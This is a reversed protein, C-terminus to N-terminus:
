TSPPGECGLKAHVTTLPRLVSIDVAKWESPGQTPSINAVVEYDSELDLDGVVFSSTVDAPNDDSILLWAAARDRCSELSLSYRAAEQGGPFVGILSARGLPRGGLQLAYGPSIGTLDVVPTSPKIGFVTRVGDLQRMVQADATPLRLEAGRVSVSERAALLSENEAGDALSSLAVIALVSISTAM